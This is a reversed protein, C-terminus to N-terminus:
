NNLNIKIKHEHKIMRKWKGEDKLRCIIDARGEQKLMM